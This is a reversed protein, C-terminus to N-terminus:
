RKRGVYQAVAKEKGNRWCVGEEYHLLELPRFLEILEGDGLLYDPNRHRDIENQRKLFTEYIFAGGGKLARLLDGLSERLLFYFVIIGDMSDERFPLAAADGQVPFLRAGAELSGRGALRIAEMSRELGYVEYGRQALFLGDRGAGMAVDLVRGKPMVQYFRALLGHPETHHDTFGWRYREDWDVM